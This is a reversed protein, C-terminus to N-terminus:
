ATTSEVILSKELLIEDRIPIQNDGIMPISPKLKRSAEIQGPFVAKITYGRRQYFGLAHLNDNTTTLQILDFGKKLIFSELHKLLASGVGLGEVTSALSLVECLGERIEYHLFGSFQGALVAKFGPLDRLDYLDGHVVITTSGWLAEAAAMIAPLDEKKIESLVIKM